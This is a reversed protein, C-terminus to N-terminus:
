CLGSISFCCVSICFFRCLCSADCDLCLLHQWLVQLLSARYDAPAPCAGGCVWRWFSGFTAAFTQFVATAPASPSAKYTVAWPIAAGAEAFLREGEQRSLNAKCLAYALVEWLCASAASTPPSSPTPADALSRVIQLSTCTITLEM